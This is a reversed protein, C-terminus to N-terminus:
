KTNRLPRKKRAAKRAKVMDNYYADVDQPTRLELEFEYEGKPGECRSTSHGRCIKPRSEYIECQQDRTLFNCRSAFNVYWRKEEVFVTIGRHATYWRVDDFDSKATPEDIEIAVYRCCRGDCGKCRNKAM